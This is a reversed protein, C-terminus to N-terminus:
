RYLNHEKRSSKGHFYKYRFLADMGHCNPCLALNSRNRLFSNRSTGERNKGTGAGMTIASWRHPDHCTPCTVVGTQAVRGEKNYLPAYGRVPGRRARRKITQAIVNGPHNKMRPIKKEAVNGADHCGRCMKENIDQGEGISRGWIRAPQSANHVSHCQQCLGSTQVTEGKANKAKPATVRLDHDTGKIWRQNRHCNTCLAGDPAAPIRLFSNLASGEAKADAGTSSKPKGPEWQHPDHCSPCTVHGGSKADARQGDQAYLPLSTRGGTKQIDVQLPHSNSGTLKKAAIGGERHCERCMAEARDGGDGYGRAWMKPGKGNHPLHCNHCLPMVKFPKGEKDKAGKAGILLNHKSRAVPRKDIHCNVCIEAQQNNPIRLFSNEGGGEVLQEKRGASTTTPSWRHPNHCTACTVHGDDFAAKQGNHDYLPLSTNKKKRKTVRTARGGRKKPQTKGALASIPVGTPHSEAGVTKKRGPGDRNHCSLCAGSIPDVGATPKRAWMKPGKGNHVRHCGKCLGAPESNSFTMTSSDHKTGRVHAKDFHCTHCLGANPESNSIRLFRNGADSPDGPKSGAKPDDPDWQHPNHCTACSLRGQLNGVSKAGDASYGPLGVRRGVKALKRGLPHSQRGVQKHKAIKGSSHCSLCLDSIPESGKTVKRAWMRPGNGKHPLHCASCVGKEDAKEGRTNVAGSKGLALNHKSNVVPREKTHCTPCLRKTRKVLLAKGKEADHPRHCSQCIVEGEEGVKAGRELLEKPVSANEPIINVPHTRMHASEARDKAYRDSHCLGCLSSNNNPVVLLKKEKGGHIRHCSQCIVSTGDKGFKAGAEVMQQPVKDIKQNYPHNGGEPGSSKSGHCNLCFSSNINKSRLFVPSDANKWDVGHATHCTGCFVKGDDNLPFLNEEPHLSQEDAKPLEVKDTPIVGIPHSFRKEEWVFRSDLVFGDHCSFCNRENSVVDQRGTNMIPRPDYPILTTVDERQFEDLWMIHCISCERKASVQRAQPATSTFSLGALLLALLTLSRHNFMKYGGPM